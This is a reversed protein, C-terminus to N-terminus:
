NNVNKYINFESYQTGDRQEQLGEYTHDAVGAGSGDESYLSVM